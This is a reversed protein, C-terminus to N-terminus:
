LRAVRIIGLEIHCWHHRNGGEGDESSIRRIVDHACTGQKDSCADPSLAGSEHRVGRGLLSDMSLAQNRLLAAQSHLLGPHMPYGLLPAGGPMGAGYMGYPLALRAGGAGLGLHRGLKAMFSTDLLKMDM